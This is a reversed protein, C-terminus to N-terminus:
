ASLEDRLLRLKRSVQTSEPRTEPAEKWCLEIFSWIGDTLFPTEEASPRMSQVGKLKKYKVTEVYDFEPYPHQNTIVKLIIGGYSFIDCAKTAEIAREKRDIVYTPKILEPAAWRVNSCVQETVFESIMKSLGFDSLCANNSGDILVNMDSLDGHIVSKDHLYSLGSIVGELLNFRDSLSLVNEHKAMYEMAPLPCNDFQHTLGLLPVVNPHHLDSWVRIERRYRRRIRSIQLPDNLQALNVKPVKVAVIRPESRPRALITTCVVAFAGSGLIDNAPIVIYDTLDELTADDYFQRVEPDEETTKVLLNHFLKESLNLLQEELEQEARVIDCGYKVIRDLEEAEFLKTLIDGVAAPLTRMHVLDGVTKMLLEKRVVENHVLSEVFAGGSECGRAISGIESFKNSERDHFALKVQDGLVDLKTLAAERSPREQTALKLIQFVQDM